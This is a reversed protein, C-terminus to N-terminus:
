EPEGSEVVVVVTSFDGLSALPAIEVRRALPAKEIPEIAVVTGVRAGLATRGFRDDALRAVMGVSLPQTSAVDATWTGRATPKLM